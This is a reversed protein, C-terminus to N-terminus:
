TTLVQSLCLPQYSLEALLPVQWWVLPGLDIELIEM